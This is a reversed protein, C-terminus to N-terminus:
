FGNEVIFITTTQNLDWQVSIQESTDLQCCDMMREPLPKGGILRCDM